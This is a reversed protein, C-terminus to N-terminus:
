QATWRNNEPNIDPFVQNPDIVVEQIPERTPLSVSFSRNREWIEVPLRVTHTQGSVTTVMLDLPMVLKELNDVVIVAGETPNDNVYRVARIGQDLQWNNYFWGRWFWALSEGAVNEITRFFDYPTPHKYAW